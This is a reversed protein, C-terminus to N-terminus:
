QKNIKPSVFLLKEYLQVKWCYTSPMAFNFKLNETRIINDAIM